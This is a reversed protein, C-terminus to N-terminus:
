KRAQLDLLADPEVVKGGYVHLGKLADSFKGEPRYGEVKVIQEAYSIASSHGCMIHYVAPATGTIPVNNSKIVSFGAASGIQANLTSQTSAALFRDNDLLLGAVWPPVICYRGESPVNAEDLTVSARVLEQYVNATTLQIAAPTTGSTDQQLQGAGAYFGAVFRDAVEALGFAARSSASDIAQPRQQALDLDDVEFAFYKSQDILLTQRSDTLLEPTIVTTDRVYNGITVPGISHIHVRDGDATIDGQYDRNVLGSQAYVLQKDLGALLRASWIQPIFQNLSM